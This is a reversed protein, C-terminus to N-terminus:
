RATHACVHMSHFAYAVSVSLM